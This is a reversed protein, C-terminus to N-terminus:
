VVSAIEEVHAGDISAAESHSAGSLQSASMAAAEDQEMNSATRANDTGALASVPQKFEESAPAIQTPSAGTPRGRARGRVRDPDVVAGEQAYECARELHQLASASAVVRSNNLHANLRAQDVAQHKRITQVQYSRGKGKNHLYCAASFCACFAFKAKDLMVTRRASAHESLVSSDSAPEAIASSSAISTTAGQPAADPLLSPDVVAQAQGTSERDAKNRASVITELTHFILADAKYHVECLALPPIEREARRCLSKWLEPHTSKVDNGNFVGVPGVPKFGYCDSVRFWAYAKIQALRELMGPIERLPRGQADIIWDAFKTWADGAKAFTQIAKARQWLLARLDAGSPPTPNETETYSKADLQEEESLQAAPTMAHYIWAPARYQAPHPSASPSAFKSSSDNTRSRLSQARNHAFQQEVLQNRLKAVTMERAIVLRHLEDRQKVAETLQKRSEELETVLEQIRLTQCLERDQRATTQEQETPIRIDGMRPLLHLTALFCPHHRRRRGNDPLRHARTARRKERANAANDAKIAVCLDPEPESDDFKRKAGPSIAGPSSMDLQLASEPGDEPVYAKVIMQPKESRPAQRKQARMGDPIYGREMYAINAKLEAPALNEKGSIKLSILADKDAQLHTKMTPICVSRGKGGGLSGCGRTYCKCFGYRAYRASSTSNTDMKVYSVDAPADTLTQLSTEPATDGVVRSALSTYFERNDLGTDPEALANTSAVAHGTSNLQDHSGSADATWAITTSGITTHQANQSKAPKTSVGAEKEQQLRSEEGRANLSNRLTLVLTLYAESKYHSDCFVFPFVDQELLICLAKWLPLIAQRVLELSMPLTADTNTMNLAECVRRWAHIRFPMLATQASEMSWVSEGDYNCVLKEFQKTDPQNACAMEIEKNPYWRLARAEAATPTKHHMQEDYLRANRVERETLGGRGSVIRSAPAIEAPGLRTGNLQALGTQLRAIEADKAAALQNSLEAAQRSVRLSEKLQEVQSELEIIRQTSRTNGQAKSAAVAPSNAM